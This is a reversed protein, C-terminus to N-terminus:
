AMEGAELNIKLILFIIHTNRYPLNPWPTPWSAMRTPLSQIRLFGCANLIYLPRAQSHGCGMDVASSPARQSIPVDTHLPFLTSWRFGHLTPLLCLCFSADHYCPVDLLKGPLGTSPVPQKDTQVWSDFGQRPHWKAWPHLWVQSHETALAMNLPSLRTHTERKHLTSPILATWNFDPTGKKGSVSPTSPSQHVVTPGQTAQSSKDTWNQLTSSQFFSFKTHKLFCIWVKLLNFNWRM